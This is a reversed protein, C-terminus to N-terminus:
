RCTADWYDYWRPKFAAVESRDINGYMVMMDTNIQALSNMVIDYGLREKKYGKWSKCDSECLGPTREECYEQITLLYYATEAASNTPESSPEAAPMSPVPSSTPQSNAPNDAVAGSCDVGSEGTDTAPGDPCLLAEADSMPPGGIQAGQEAADRAAQDASQRWFVVAGVGVAILVVALSILVLTRGTSSPRTSGRPMSTAVATEGSTPAAYPRTEKTWQGGDWYREQPEGSPDPHWGSTGEPTDSVHGGINLPALVRM